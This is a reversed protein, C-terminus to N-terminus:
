KSNFNSDIKSILVKELNEISSSILSIKKLSIIKIIKKEALEDLINEVDVRKMKYKEALELSQIRIEKLDIYDKNKIKLGRIMGL